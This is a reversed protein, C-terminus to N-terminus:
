RRQLGTDTRPFRCQTSDKMMTQITTVVKDFPTQKQQQKEKKKM